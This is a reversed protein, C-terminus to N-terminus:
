REDIGDDEGSLADDAEDAYEDYDAESAYDAGDELEPDEDSLQEEDAYEGGEDSPESGYSQNESQSGKEPSVEFTEEGENQYGQLSQDSYSSPNGQDDEAPSVSRSLVDVYGREEQRAEMGNASESTGDM